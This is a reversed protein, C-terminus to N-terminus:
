NRRAKAQEYDVWQRSLASFFLALSQIEIPRLGSRASIEVADRAFLKIQAATARAPYAGRAFLLEHFMPRVHASMGARDCYNEVDAWQHIPSQAVREEFTPEPQPESGEASGTDETEAM